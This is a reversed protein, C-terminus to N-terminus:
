AAAARTEVVLRRGSVTIQWVDSAGVPAALAHQELERLGGATCARSAHLRRTIRRLHHPALPGLDVLAVLVRQAIDSLERSAAPVKDRSDNSKRMRARVPDM